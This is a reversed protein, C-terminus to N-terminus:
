KSNLRRFPRFLETQQRRKREEDRQDDFKIKSKELKFDIIISPAVNQQVDVIQIKM